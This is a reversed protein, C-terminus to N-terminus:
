LIIAICFGNISKEVELSLRHCFISPMTITTIVFYLYWGDQFYLLLLEASRLSFSYHLLTLPLTIAIFSAKFIISNPFGMSFHHVLFNIKLFNNATIYIVSLIVLITNHVGLM